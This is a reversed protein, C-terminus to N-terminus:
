KSLNGFFMFFVATFMCVGLPVHETVFAPFMIICQDVRDERKLQQTQGRTRPAM